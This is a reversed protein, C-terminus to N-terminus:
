SAAKEQHRLELRLRAIEQYEPTRLFAEREARSPFLEAFRGGNGFFANHVDTASAGGAARYGARDHWRSGDTSCGPYAKRRCARPTM